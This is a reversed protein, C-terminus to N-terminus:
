DAGLIFKEGKGTLLFAGFEKKGWRRNPFISGNSFGPPNAVISEFDGSHAKMGGRKGDISTSM